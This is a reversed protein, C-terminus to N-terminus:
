ADAPPKIYTDFTGINKKLTTCYAVVSLQLIGCNEGGHELDVHFFISNKICDHAISHVKTTYIIVYKIVSAILISFFSIM